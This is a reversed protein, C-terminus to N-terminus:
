WRMPNCRTKDSVQWLSPRASKWSRCHERGRPGVNRSPLTLVRRVMDPVIMGGLYLLLCLVAAMARLVVAAAGAAVRQPVLFLGPAFLTVLLVALGIFSFVIGASGGKLLLAWGVLAMAAAVIFGLWASKRSRGNM